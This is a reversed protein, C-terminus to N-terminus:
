YVLLMCADQFEVKDNFAIYRLAKYKEEIVSQCNIDGVSCSDIIAIQWLSTKSIFCIHQYSTEAM